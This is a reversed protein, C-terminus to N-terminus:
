QNQINVAKEYDKETFTYTFRYENEGSSRGIKKVEYESDFDMLNREMKCFSLSGSDCSQVLLKENDFIISISDIEWRNFVGLPERHYGTQKDVTYSGNPPIFIRESKELYASDRRYYAQIKISHLTENQLVYQNTYETEIICSQVLFLALFLITTYKMGAM